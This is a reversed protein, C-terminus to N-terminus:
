SCPVTGRFFSCQSLFLRSEIREVDIELINGPYCGSSGEGLIVGQSRLFPNPQITSQFPSTTSTAGPNPTMVAGGDHICAPHLLELMPVWSLKKPPPLFRTPPLSNWQRCITSAFPSLFLPVPRCERVSSLFLKCFSADIMLLGRIRMRMM